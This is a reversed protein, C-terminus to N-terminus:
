PWLRGENPLTGLAGALLGLLLAAALAVPFLRRPRDNGRTALLAIPSLVLGLPIALILGQVLPLNLVVARSLIWQEPVGGTIQAGIPFGILMAVVVKLVKDPTPAGTWWDKERALRRFHSEGPDSPPRM